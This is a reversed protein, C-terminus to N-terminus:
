MAILKNKKIGYESNIKNM